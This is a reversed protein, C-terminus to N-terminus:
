QSPKIGSVADCTVNNAPLINLFEPCVNNEFWQNNTELLLSCFRGTQRPRLLAQQLPVVSVLLLLLHPFYLIEHREWNESTPSSVVIIFTWLGPVLFVADLEQQLPATTCSPPGPTQLVQLRCHVIHLVQRMEVFKLVIIGESTVLFFMFWSYLPWLNRTM